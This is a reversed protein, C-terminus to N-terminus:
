NTLVKSAIADAARQKTLFLCLFFMSQHWLWKYVQCNFVKLSRVNFFPVSPILLFLILTTFTKNKKWTNKGEEGTAATPLKWQNKKWKAAAPLRASRDAESRSSSPAWSSPRQWCFHAEHCFRGFSCCSSFERFLLLESLPLSQAQLCCLVLGQHPSFLLLLLCLMPCMKTRWRGRRPSGLFGWVSHAGVQSQNPKQNKTAWLGGCEFAVVCIVIFQVWLFVWTRM